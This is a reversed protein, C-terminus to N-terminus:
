ECLAFNWRKQGLAFNFGLGLYRCRDVAICRYWPSQGRIELPCGVEMSLM